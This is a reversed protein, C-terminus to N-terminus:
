SKVFAWVPNDHPEVPLLTMQLGHEAVFDDVAKIVGYGAWDVYDHGAMVGGSRVKPYWMRLDVFIGDYSHDADIFVFDLSADAFQLSAVASLDRIITCRDSYEGALNCCSEYWGVSEGANYEHEADWVDVMYIQDFKAMELMMRSHGGAAVGVEVWKGQRGTAELWAFLEHRHKIVSLDNPDLEQM